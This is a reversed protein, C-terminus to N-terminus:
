GADPQFTKIVIVARLAPCDRSPSRAAHPIDGRFHVLRGPIPSVSKIVDCQAADFFVTEGAWNAEWGQHAYYISTFHGPDDSDTHLHGDGGYTHGNAYVRVPIHGPAITDRILHWLALIPEVMPRDTLEHECCAQKDANDGAFHSHWFGHGTQSVAAKWGYRWINAETLATLRLRLYAPVFNDLVTISPSADYLATEDVALRTVQKRHRPVTEFGYTREVEAAAEPRLLSKAQAFLNAHHSRQIPRLRPLQELWNAVFVHLLDLRDNGSLDHAARLVTTPGDAAVEAAVGKTFAGTDMMCFAYALREARDGIVGAVVPRESLPILQRRFHETGYVSHYLGAFCVADDCGWARLKDHVGLLHDLLSTGSHGMHVERRTHLYGVAAAIAASADSEAIGDEEVMRLKTAM